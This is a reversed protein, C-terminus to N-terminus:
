LKSDIWEIMQDKMLAGEVRDIEKGSGDFLIMTPLGKVRFKSSEEQAQDSDVKAVRLSAGKAQAVQEVQPAVMQCPGCWTAYFDVLMPIGSESQLEEELQEGSIDTVTGPSLHISFNAAAIRAKLLAQVLEEKEILHAWRLNRSALETRLEKVKMSRLEELVKAEDFGKPLQTDRSGSATTDESTVKAEQEKPTAQIKGERADSLREVLSEKDFCDSFDIGLEHLEERIEKIRLEHIPTTSTM